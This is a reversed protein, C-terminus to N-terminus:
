MDEQYQEFYRSGDQTGQYLFRIEKAVPQFDVDLPTGNKPAPHEHINYDPAFQILKEFQRDYKQDHMEENKNGKEATDRRFLSSSKRHSNHRSSICQLQFLFLM